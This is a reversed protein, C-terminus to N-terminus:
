IGGGGVNGSNDLAQSITLNVEKVGGPGITLRRQTPQFLAIQTNDTSEVFTHIVVDGAPVIMMFRHNPNLTESRVFPDDVPARYLLNGDADTFTNADIDPDPFVGGFFLEPSEIGFYLDIAISQLNQQGGNNGGGSTDQVTVIPSFNSVSGYVLATPLRNLDRLFPSDPGTAYPYMTILQDFEQSDEPDRLNSPPLSGAYNIGRFFKNTLGLGRFILTVQDNATFGLDSFNATSTIIAPRNDALGRNAFIMKHNMTNYDSFAGFNPNGADILLNVYLPGGTPAGAYGAFATYVANEEDDGLQAIDQFMGIMTNDASSNLWNLMFNGLGVDKYQEAAFAVQTSSEIENEILDRPRDTPGFYVELTGRGGGVLFSHQTDDRKHVGFNHEIFMQNFQNSFAAAVGTNLINIVDGFTSDSGSSEWNYSGTVVRAQDIILFRSQMLRPEGELDTRIEINGNNKTADELQDYFVKYAPDDYFQKETVIRINTGSHAENLLATVIDQRDIRTVAIDLTSTASAILNFIPDGDLNESSLSGNRFLHDVTQVQIEPILDEPNNVSGPTTVSDGGGGCGTLAFISGACLALATRALFETTRM